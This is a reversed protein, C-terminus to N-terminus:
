CLIRVTDKGAAATEWSTTQAIRTLEPAPIAVPAGTRPNRGQRAARDRVAFKGVGGNAVREDPALADAIASLVTGAIRVAVASTMSSEAAVHSDLKAKNM